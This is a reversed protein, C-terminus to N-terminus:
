PGSDGAGGSGATGGSGGTGADPPPPPPMMSVCGASGDAHVDGDGTFGAKCTCDIQGAPVAPLQDACTANPDCSTPKCEHTDVDCNRGEWGLSCTCVYANVQPTTCQGHVCPSPTAGCEDVDICGGM